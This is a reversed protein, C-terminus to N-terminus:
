ASGFGRSPRKAKRRYTKRKGRGRRRTKRRGAQQAQFASMRDDVDGKAGKLLEILGDAVVQLEAVPVTEQNIKERKVAMREFIEYLRRQPSDTPEQVFDAHKKNFTDVFYDYAGVTAARLKEKDTGRRAANLAALKQTIEERSAALEAPTTM